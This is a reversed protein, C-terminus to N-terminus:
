APAGPLRPGLQERICCASSASAATITGSTTLNCSEDTNVIADIAGECNDNAPPCAFLQIPSSNIVCNVDQDNAVSIVIDTLFPYPGFTYVGTATAAQTTGGQNDSITLSEAKGIM